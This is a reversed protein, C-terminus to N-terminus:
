QKGGLAEIQVVVRPEAAYQKTTHDDVVQKDDLYAIGNCADMVGKLINDADPKKTPWIEGALCAKQKKKSYSKPVGFFAQVSIRVPGALPKGHYAAMLLLRANQKYARSKPPDFAHSYRGRHVVRPRGQGVPQGSIEFKIM